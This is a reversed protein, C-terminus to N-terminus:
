RIPRGASASAFHRRTRPVTRARAQAGTMEVFVLDEAGVTLEQRELRVRLGLPGLPRGVRGRDDGLRRSMQPLIPPPHGLAPLAVIALRRDRDVFDMEARPAAVQGLVPPIQRIALEGVLEDGVCGFHTERMELQHRDGFIREVARPSVLRDRQERRGATISRRVIEAGKDIGAMAGPQSQQQIPNGPMERGIRVPEAAKVTGRKVLVGVRPLAIMGIPVRQDVIVAATLDRIEQQRAREVPQAFEVDVADPDIRDGRHQVEVVAAVRPLPDRVSEAPAFVEFRDREQASHVLQHEPLGARGRHGLLQGGPRHHRARNIDAPEAKAEFPVHPPHVVRQPVHRQIRDVAFVVVVVEAEAQEIGKM